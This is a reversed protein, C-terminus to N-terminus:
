KPSLREGDGGNKADLDHAMAYMHTMAYYVGNFVGCSNLSGQSRIPPFFKLSSNDVHAPLDELPVSSATDATGTTGTMVELEEGPQSLLHRSKGVPPRGQKKRWQNIRELAIKNLKVKKVKKMHKNQWALEEPTLEPLGTMYPGHERAMSNSGFLSVFLVAMGIIAMKKGLWNTKM